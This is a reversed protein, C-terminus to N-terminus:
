QNSSEDKPDRGGANNKSLKLVTSVYTATVLMAVVILNGVGLIWDDHVVLLRRTTALIAVAGMVFFFRCFNRAAENSTQEPKKDAMHMGKQYRLYTM